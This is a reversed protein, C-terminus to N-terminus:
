SISSLDYLSGFSKKTELSHVPLIQFLSSWGFTEVLFPAVLHCQMKKFFCILQWAIQDGNSALIKETRM